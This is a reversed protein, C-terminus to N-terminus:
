KSRNKERLKKKYAVVKTRDRTRTAEEELQQLRADNDHSVGGSGKIAKEPAPPRKKSTTKVKAEMQALKWILKVPDKEQALERAKKENKGLAYVLLEPRDSGQIIVSQQQESFVDRVVDEADEFDRVKLKVKADKYNALRETYERQQTEQQEQVTAARADAQQKRTLWEGYEKEYRGQDYDCKAITPKEGVEVPKNETTTTLQKELEKIRKTKERDRKRLDKVWPPASQHEKEESEEGEISIIVEDESDESEEEENSSEEETDADIEVSNEETEVVETEDVTEEEIVTEDSENDIMVSGKRM